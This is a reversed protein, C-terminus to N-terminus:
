HLPKSGCPNDPFQNHDRHNTVDDVQYYTTYNRYKKDHKQIKTNNKTQSKIMTATIQSMMWKINLYHLKQIKQTPQFSIFIYMCSTGFFNGKVESLAGVLLHKQSLRIINFCYYDKIKTWNNIFKEFTM